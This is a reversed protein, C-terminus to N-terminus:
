TPEMKIPQITSFPTREDLESDEGHRACAAEVAEVVLMYCKTTNM